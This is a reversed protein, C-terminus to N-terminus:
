LPVLVAEAHTPCTHAISDILGIFVSIRIQSPGATGFLQLDMTQHAGGGITGTSPAAGDFNFAVTGGPSSLFPDSYFGTAHAVVGAPTSIRVQRTTPDTCDVAIVGFGPVTLLDRFGNSAVTQTAELVTPVVGRALDAATVSGDTLDAGTLTGDKLDAGTLTGDKVDKGTLSGNKVQKSAVSNKPLKPRHTAAYATGSGLVLTLALIGAWQRALHRLLSNM